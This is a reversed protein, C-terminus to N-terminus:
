FIHLDSPSGLYAQISTTRQFRVTQKCCYLPDHGGLCSHAIPRIGMASSSAKVVVKGALLVYM